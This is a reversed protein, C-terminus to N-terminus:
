PWKIKNWKHETKAANVPLDATSRSQKVKPKKETCYNTNCTQSWRYPFLSPTSFYLPIPIVIERKIQGKVETILATGCEEM